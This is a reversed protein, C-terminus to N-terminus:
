YHRGLDKDMNFPDITADTIVPSSMSNLTISRQNKLLMKLYVSENHRTSVATVKNERCKKCRYRYTPQPLCSFAYLHTSQITSVLFYCFIVNM